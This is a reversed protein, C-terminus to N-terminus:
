GRLYNASSQQDCLTCTLRTRGFRTRSTVPPRLTCLLLQAQVPAISKQAATGASATEVAATALAVLTSAAVAAAAAATVAVPMGLAYSQAERVIASAAAHPVPDVKRSATTTTTTTAAAAAVETPLARTLSSEAAAGEFGLGNTMETGKSTECKFFYFVNIKAGLTITIHSLTTVAHGNSKQETSLHQHSGQCPALFRQLGYFRFGGGLRM